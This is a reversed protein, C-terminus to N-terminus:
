APGHLADLTKQVQRAHDKYHLRLILAYGKWNLDGFDGEPIRLNVNAEPSQTALLAVAEAQRERLRRVLEGLPRTPDVPRHQSMPNPRTGAVLARVIGVVEELTVIVHDVIEAVSWEGAARRRHAVGDSVGAVTALFEDAAEQVRRGIEPASLKASQAALYSRLREPECPEAM